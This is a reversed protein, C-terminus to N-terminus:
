ATLDLTMFQSYPDETYDAFPGCVTFGHRAYLARAPAFVAQSGTELSLRDYSRRRAEAIIHAVIRGGVGRGRHAEATHMSKIEGHRRDLEKLAGCGMVAAGNLATWFTIAPARLSGVDLTHNSEPPSHRASHALHARLLEAAEPRCPDDERIAIHM